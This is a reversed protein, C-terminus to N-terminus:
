LKNPIGGNESLTIMEVLYDNSNMQYTKISMGYGATELVARCNQREKDGYAGGQQREKASWPHSIYTDVLRFRM